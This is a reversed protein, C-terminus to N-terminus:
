PPKRRGWVSSAGGPPRFGPVGAEADQRAQESRRRHWARIRRVLFMHELLTLWRDITKGDVGLRSGLKAMNLLQGAALALHEILLAM